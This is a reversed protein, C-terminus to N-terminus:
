PAEVPGIDPAAGVTRPGGNLDTDLGDLPMGADVLDAPPVYTADFVAPGVHNDSGYGAAEFTTLDTWTAGDVDFLKHQDFWTNHVSLAGAVFLGGSANGTFASNIFEVSQGSGGTDYGWTGVYGSGSPDHGTVLVHAYRYRGPGDGILAADAGSGDIVVDLVDGGQWLKLGNRDVDRVVTRMVVVDSGKIDIGDAAAGEILSDLVVIQRGSEVAFADAGSGAVAVRGEITVRDLWLHDCPGEGCSVGLDADKVTVQSLLLGDLVPAATTGSGFIGIGDRFDGTMEDVTMRELTVASLTGSSPQLSVGTEFGRFSLGAIATHSASLLLGYRQDAAAQIVADGASMLCVDDVSWDLAFWQGQNETYTGPAVEILDGPEANALAAAVSEGEAVSHTVERGACAEDFPRPFADIELDVFTAPIEAPGSPVASPVTPPDTVDIMPDVTPSTDSARIATDSPSPGCAIFVLLLPSM